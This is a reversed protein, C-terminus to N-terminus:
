VKKSSGRWSPEALGRAAARLWRWRVMSGVWRWTRREPESPVPGGRGDAVLSYCISNSSCRSPLQHESAILYHVRSLGIEDMGARTRKESGRFSLAASSQVFNPGGHGSKNRGGVDKPQRPVIRRCDQAGHASPDVDHCVPAVARKINAGCRVKGSPHPFMPLACRIAKCPPVAQLAENIGLLM